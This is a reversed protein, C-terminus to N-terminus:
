IEGKGRFMRRLPSFYMLAIIMGEILGAASGVLVTWATDVYLGGFPILLLSVLSVAVFLTRGWPRFFLVGASALMGIITVAWWLTHMMQGPPPEDQADDLISSEVELSGRVDPALWDDTISKVVVSAFILFQHFVVLTQFNRRM